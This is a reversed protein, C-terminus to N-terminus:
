NYNGRINEHEPLSRIKQNTNQDEAMNNEIRNRIFRYSLINNSLAVECAEEFRLPDSKRQLSLLGDCKRYLVEPTKEQVFMLEMLRFLAQSRKAAMSMYYAPSRDRYHQHNSAMHDRLISYGFGIVRQHTAMLKGEHYIKVITRTYIVKVQAGIFTYPVSYYHKDRGLYICNNQAVRLEAYYRIEFDNDPLPKLLQKEQALFREERSYERQQMRTQNHMLIKEGIVQNLESLSFFVQNRIKAYVRQYILHVQNEVLAKDKPKRVRAPLVTFGYHNAFDEMILTIDAEYRDTKKVAAKLNDPVVIKPVGGISRLCCSLAYLFDETTQHEVALAFSYDSFPLTAVFVNVKIEEGTERDIYCLTDGAFDIFLKEGPRHDLICSPNRAVRLQNLHFCFQSYRYGGPHKCLYEEWLLKLTVHPRKLEKELYPLMERLEAFRKELYAPNGAHFRGELVPDDMKLLEGIDLSGKQIKKLYRNVTEKYIGLDKAIRRNSLGEQHLRLVQKLQSMRIVKRTM